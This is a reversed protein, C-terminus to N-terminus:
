APSVWRSGRSWRNVAVTLSAVLDRLLADRHWAFDATRPIIAFMPPARAIQGPQLVEPM